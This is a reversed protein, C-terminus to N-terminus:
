LNLGAARLTRRTAHHAANQGKTANISITAVHRRGVYVLMHGGRGQEVIGGAARIEKVLKRADGRASM